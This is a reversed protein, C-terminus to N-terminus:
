SLEISNKMREIKRQAEDAGIRGLVTSMDGLRQEVYLPDLDQGRDTSSVAAYEIQKLGGSIVKRNRLRKKFIPWFFEVTLSIRSLARHRTVSNSGYEGLDQLFQRGVSEGFLDVAAATIPKGAVAEVEGTMYPVMEQLFLDLARNILIRNPRNATAM